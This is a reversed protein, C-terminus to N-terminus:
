KAEKKARPKRPAKVKTVAPKEVETKVEIVTEIKQTVEEASGFLRKILEIIKKM